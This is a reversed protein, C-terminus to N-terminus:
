EFKNFVQAFILVELVEEMYEKFNIVLPNIISPNMLM